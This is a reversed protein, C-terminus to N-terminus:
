QISALIRKLKATGLYQRNGDGHVVKGNKDFIFSAPVYVPPSFDKEIKPSARIVRIAPHFTRVMSRLNADSTSGYRGETWNVAVINIKNTGGNTLFKSLQM